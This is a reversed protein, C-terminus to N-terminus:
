WTRWSEAPWRRSARSRCRGCGISSARELDTSLGVGTNLATFLANQVVICALAFTLYEHPSGSIAGGFLYTFLLLFMVPQVSFDILEFPNHKIQVLTRWALSMTQRVSQLPTVRPSLSPRSTHGGTAPGTTSSTTPSTTPTPATATATM